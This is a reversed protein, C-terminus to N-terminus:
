SRAPANPPVEIWDGEEAAPMSTREQRRYTRSGGAPARESEGYRESSPPMEVWDGPDDDKVARSQGRARRASPEPAEKQPVARSPAVAVTQPAEVQVTYGQVTRDETSAGVDSRPAEPSVSPAPIGGAVPVGNGGGTTPAWIPPIDAPPQGPTGVPLGDAARVMQSLFIERSTLSRTVVGADGPGPVAVMLAGNGSGDVWPGSWAQGPSFITGKVTVHVRYQYAPVFDLQGTFIRWYRPENQDAFSWRFRSSKDMRDTGDVRKGKARFEVEVVEATSQLEVNLGVPGVDLTGAEDARVELIRDNTMTGNPEPDLEITNREVYVKTFPYENEGPPELLHVKRKVFIRDPEWGAPANQVEDKRREVFVPRFTTDAPDSQQFTTPKWQIQGQEGPYGAQGSLFAVPEGVWQKAKDPWNVVPKIFCTIKRGLGGLVLRTFYKKEANPDRKIENFFGEMSSSITHPQLYRFYRTEEYNLDVYTSDHRAKLALGASGGFLSSFFGGSPAKAPEMKPPPPDFIVKKAIETFQQVIVDIRQNIAREMEQAGPATGDIDVEVKLDGNMRLRNFEAKIDASFWLYSGSAAGAFGNYISKWKGTIKVRMLQSWMPLTLHQAIVIPSFSGHFGAWIIESPIAGILAAYANEGGTISGPGQGEMKWAWPNLATPARFGRGHLVPEALSGERMVARTRPVGSESPAGGGNPSPSGGGGPVVAGGSGADAPISGDSSPAVNSIVTINSVIPAMRFMPAVNTRIGWYKDNNGSFKALLQDQSKKLVSAPFRSTTTLALVGGQVEGNEIGISSEDFVGVFHVHRFLYDGRDGKRALRVKEPLYYFVPSKRERQLEDNNRDPLYAISYEEGAEDNIVYEEFGGTFTPGVANAM